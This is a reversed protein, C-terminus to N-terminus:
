SSSDPSFFGGTESLFLGGAFLLIGGVIFAGVVVRMRSM